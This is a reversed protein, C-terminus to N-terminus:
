LFLDKEKKPESLKLRRARARKVEKRRHYECYSKTVLPQTCESCLGRKRKRLIYRRKRSYSGRDNDTFEDHILRAKRANEGREIFECNELEYNGDNDKRDISPSKLLDARNRKWLFKIDGVTFFCRIGRGGYLKYAANKPNLCRAKINSLYKNLQGDTKNWM